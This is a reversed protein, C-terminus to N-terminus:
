VESLDIETRGTLDVPATRTRITTTVIGGAPPLTAGAVLHTGSRPAHGRVPIGTEGTNM